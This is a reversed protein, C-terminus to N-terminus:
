NEGNPTQQHLMKFHQDAVYFLASLAYFDREWEKPIIEKKKYYLEHSVSAWADQAITRVQIEFQMSEVGVKTGNRLTVIYQIDMYGFVDKPRKEIKDEESILKFTRRIIEGVRKLDSLFLCVIRFGVLDKVQNFPDKLNRSKAKESFSDFSKIRSQLSHIKIQSKLAKYLQYKAIQELKIFHEQRARYEDILEKKSM